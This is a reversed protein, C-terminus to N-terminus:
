EGQKIEDKLVATVQIDDISVTDKTRFDFLYAEDTYFFITKRTFQGSVLREPIDSNDEITENIFINFKHTLKSDNYPIEVEVSPYNIINFVFNRVYEEAEEFYRTYIDLQWSIQIPIKNLQSGKKSDISKRWGDFSSPQKIRSLITLNPDRRLAILPLDVPKDNTVDAVYEFLGRTENPGTIKIDKDKVWRKIKNLVADDYLTASM